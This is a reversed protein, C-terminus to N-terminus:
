DYCGKRYGSLDLTVFKFGCKKVNDVCRRNILDVGRQIDQVEIRAIDGHARVRVDKLGANLLIEEADEVRKLTDMDLPTGYPIRTALCPSSPFNHTYLGQEKSTKRIDNKTFGCEILPSKVGMEEKAVLGPRYQGLDDTNSGDIVVDYSENKALKLIEGFIRKKCFYCRDKNNAAVDDFALVDADIIKHNIGYKDCFFTCQAIESQMQLPTQVTACLYPIGSCKLAYALLSSDVGGSFALVASKYEKLHEVLTNFM